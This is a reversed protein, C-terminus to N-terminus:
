INNTSKNLFDKLLDAFEEKDEVSLWDLENLKLSVDSVLKKIDGISDNLKNLDTSLLTEMLQGDFKSGTLPDEHLFEVAKKIALEELINQELMRIVDLTSLGEVQKNYLEMYWQELSYGDNSYPAPLNYVEGITMGIAMKKIGGYSSFLDEIKKIYTNVKDLAEQLIKREAENMNPNKLSGELGKKIKNLGKYSDKMEKLHNWYGGGPKPVPNGQLDRLTGSFDKETLHGEVINDLTELNRKQARSLNGVEGSDKEEERAKEEDKARILVYEATSEDVGTASVMEPITADRIKKGTHLDVWSGIASDLIVPVGDITDLLPQKWSYDGDWPTGDPLKLLQQGDESLGLRYGDPTWGIADTPVYVGLNGAPLAVDRLWQDMRNYTNDSPNVVNGNHKIVVGYGIAELAVKLSMLGDIAHLKNFIPTAISTAVEAPEIEYACGGFHNSSLDFGFASVRAYVVDRGCGKEISPSFYLYLSRVDHWVYDKYSLTLTTAESLYIMRSSEYVKVNVGPDEVNSRGFEAKLADLGATVWDGAVIVGDAMQDLSNLFNSKMDASMKPWTEKAKQYMEDINDKLYQETHMASAAVTTTAVVATAYSAAAWEEFTATLANAHAESTKFAGYNINFLLLLAVLVMLVKNLLKTSHLLKM